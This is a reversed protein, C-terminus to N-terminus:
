LYLLRDFTPLYELYISLIYLYKCRRAAVPDSSIQPEKIEGGQRTREKVLAANLGRLVAEM